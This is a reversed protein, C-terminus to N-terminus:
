WFLYIFLHFCVCSACCPKFLWLLGTCNNCVVATRFVNRFSGMQAETGTKLHSFYMGPKESRENLSTHGWFLLLIVLGLKTEWKGM